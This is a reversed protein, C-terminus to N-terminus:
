KIRILMLIPNDTEKISLALKELQKKKEANIAKLTKFVTSIIYQKLKIADTWAIM